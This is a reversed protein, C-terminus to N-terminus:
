GRRVVFYPQDTRLKGLGPYLAASAPAANVEFYYQLAFPSRTYDKPIEGRWAAGASQMTASQWREAQNVVRYHLRVLGYKTDSALELPLARGAQYTAAKPVGLAAVPDALLRARDALELLAFTLGRADQGCAWVGNRTECLALAEPVADVRAGSAGIAAAAHRSAFGAAMVRLDGAPADAARAYIRASVGRDTLARVLDGAAWRASAAGAVADTPDAIVAVGRAAASAARGTAAVGAAAGATIQLFRRRNLRASM